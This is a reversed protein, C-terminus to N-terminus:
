ESRGLVVFEDGDSPATPLAALISFTFTTKNYASVKRGLGKNVGTRFFVYAGKYQDTHTSDLAGSHAVISTTSGGADATGYVVLDLYPDEVDSPNIAVQAQWVGGVDFVLAGQFGRAVDGTWIYNGSGTIPEVFGSSIAGGVTAGAVDYLQGRLTGVVGTLDLPLNVTINYTAM